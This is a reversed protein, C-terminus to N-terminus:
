FTLVYRFGPRIMDLVNIPFYYFGGEYGFMERAISPMGPTPDFPYEIVAYRNGTMRSSRRAQYHAEAETTAHQGHM